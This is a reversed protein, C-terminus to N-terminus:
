PFMGSQLAIRGLNSQLLSDAQLRCGKQPHLQPSTAECGRDIGGQRSLAFTDDLRNRNRKRTTFLAVGSAGADCLVMLMVRRLGLPRSKLRGGTHRNLFRWVVKSLCGRTHRVKCFELLENALRNIEVPDCECIVDVRDYRRLAEIGIEWVSPDDVHCSQHRLDQLARGGLVEKRCDRQCGRPPPGQHSRFRM